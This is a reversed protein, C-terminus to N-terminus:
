PQPPVRVCRFGIDRSGYGPVVVVRFASRLRQPSFVFSGGRVVRRGTSLTPGAPDVFLGAQYDDYWDLVWEWANGYMDYLGLPNPRKQRVLHIRNNSNGDFWAYRGLQNEDEGFSWPARSGGRAAYEWQAETPLDGGVKSCFDRAQKWDINVVPEDNRTPHDTVVQAYQRNTTETAAMQFDSLAVLRPPEVIENDYAMPEGKTSGMTFTGPCISVWTIGNVAETPPGGYVRVAGHQELVRWPLRAQELTRAGSFDLARALGALDDAVAVAWPGPHDDLHHVADPKEGKPVIVLVQTQQNLARNPGLWEALQKAWDTGILVQDAGGKDLLRIALQRAARDKYPTAIVVLSRLPWEPDCARIPQALVGARLLVSDGLQVPNATAAWNWNLPIEAGAPVPLTVSEKRSGLTVQYQNQRVPEVIRLTQAAVVSHDYQSDQALLRPPNPTLWRHGATTFAAVALITLLTLALALRPANLPPPASGYLGAAFGLERLRHRTVVPLNAFRWPLYIREGDEDRDGARHDAAAFEGLRARIEERLEEDALQALRDAAGVPDTYLQLLAREVQWRRSALSNRWLSLPNEQARKKRDAELYRTQWWALARRAPSHPREPADERREGRLLGNILRRRTEPHAAAALIRDIQWPSVSLGLLVRLTHAAAADAQVGGLAVVAAWRRADGYLADDQPAAVPADATVGGLWAPLQALAVVELSVRQAVFLASLQDGQPSCDVWCLRPWRQLSGLLRRTEERHLPHELQRRLGAGDSFIVVLAQRGQGEEAVPRYGPQAPWDVRHPVDTFFGQRTELGAARLTTGLQAAVERPTRGELHRDLWFWIDRAYVAPQFHLRTFGGAQATEHVTRSLNLRRTPDDTIFREINWVLQRRSRADILASDDRLPPPLPQWGAGGYRLPTPEIVPFRRRYRWALGLALMLATAGLLVLPRPGLRNPVWITEPKIEDIRWFWVTNVPQDPLDPDLNEGTPSPPLADERPPPMGPIPPPTVGQGILWWLLVALALMVVLMGPLWYLFRRSEPPLEVAPEMPEGVLPPPASGSSPVATPQPPEAPWDADHDPCWAAFLGEFTRHQAPTKVLLAGLLTKLGARDLAPAREFLHRLREIEGPGVPLGNLRLTALFDDLGALRDPGDLPM